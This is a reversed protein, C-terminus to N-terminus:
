AQVYGAAYEGAPPTLKVVDVLLGAPDHTMFHRQGWAEDRLPQVIPLGMAEARELLADVDDVEVTVVVGRSAERYGEPVSEHGPTIFAVQAAPNDPHRLQVYWDSEFVVEFGLLGTYFDRDASLDPSTTLPFLSKM